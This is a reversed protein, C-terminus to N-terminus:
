KEKKEPKVYAITIDYGVEVGCLLQCSGDPKDKKIETVPGGGRTGPEVLGAKATFTYDCKGKGPLVSKVEVTDEAEIADNCVL